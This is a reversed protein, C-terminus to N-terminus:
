KINSFSFNEEKYYYYYIYLEHADARTTMDGAGITEGVVHGQTRNTPVAYVSAARQDNAKSHHHKQKQKKIDRKIKEQYYVSNICKLKFKKGRDSKTGVWM